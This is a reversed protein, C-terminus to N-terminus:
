PAGTGAAADMTIVLKGQVQGALGRRLAEPVEALPHCRDIIPTVDGVRIMECIEALGENARHALVRMSVGHRRRIWGSCLLMWLLRVLSGGVAVYTGGPRLARRYARLSRHMAMDLVLDYREGRATFDERAFDIVEDAGLSRMLDLKSGRDVGTVTAGLAKAMQIAFTGVGGGGGNVLVRHGAQVNGYRRVGLLAMAGAQPVAAAQEFSLFDPKPTWVAQPACVLEAFGGWRAATLDGFVADGPQVGRVDRGVAEVVGAVDAGLIRDRPRLLGEARLIYPRGVLREWDWSNIGTARVRVLLEDDRPTPAEIEALRLVDPTGYRDCVIAKM